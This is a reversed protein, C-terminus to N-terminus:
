AVAIRHQERSLGITIAKTKTQRAHVCITSLIKGTQRRQDIHQTAKAGTGPVILVGRIHQVAAAAVWVYTSPLSHYFNYLIFLSNLYSRKAAKSKTIGAQQIGRVVIGLQASLIRRLTAISICRRAISITGNISISSPVRLLLIFEKGGQHFLYIYQVFRIGLNTAIQM